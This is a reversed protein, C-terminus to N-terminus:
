GTVAEGNKVRQVLGRWQASTLELVPGSRDRSDRALVFPASAAVEVCEGAGASFSSTRWFLTPYRNPRVTVTSHRRLQAAM